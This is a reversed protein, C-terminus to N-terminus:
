CCILLLGLRVEAATLVHWRREREVTPLNPVPGPSCSNMIHGNPRWDAGVTSFRPRPPEPDKQGEGKGRAAQLLSHMEIVHCEISSIGMCPSFFVILASAPSFIFHRTFNQVWSLCINGSLQSELRKCISIKCSYGHFAHGTLSKM